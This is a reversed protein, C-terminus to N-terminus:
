VSAQLGAGGLIAKKLLRQLRRPIVFIFSKDAHSFLGMFFENKSGPL